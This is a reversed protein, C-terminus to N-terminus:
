LSSQDRSPKLSSYVRRALEAIARNVAAPEEMNAMHSARPLDLMTAGKLRALLAERVSLNYPLDRGGTIVLAQARLEGLREAAPPELSQAPNDHTWHWGSYDDLMRDLESAVSPVERAEAFWGADRWIKKAAEIGDARAAQRLAGFLKMLDDTFPIGALGSICIPVWGVVLDPRGLALELMQHAGISHGIAVVREIGLYECLAAADECHKYATTGPLASRGFGRADYTVVRWTKALEAQPRWMRHDLTFGHLFLLAPGTGRDEYHLHTGNVNAIGVESRVQNSSM